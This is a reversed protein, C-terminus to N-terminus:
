VNISLVCVVCKGSVCLSCKSMVCDSVVLVCQGFMYVSITCILRVYANEINVQCLICVLCRSPVFYICLWQGFAYVSFM